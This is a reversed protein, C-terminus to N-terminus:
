RRAVVRWLRVLFGLGVLGIIWLIGLIVDSSVGGRSAWTISILALASVIIIALAAVALGRVWRPVGLKEFRSVYRSDV